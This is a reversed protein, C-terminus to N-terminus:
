VASEDMSEALEGFEMEKEKEALCFDPGRSAAYLVLCARSPSLSSSAGTKRYSFPYRM